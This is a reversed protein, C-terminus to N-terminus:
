GGAYRLATGSVRRLSAAIRRHRCPSTRRFRRHAGGSHRGTRGPCAGSERRLRAASSHPRPRGAPGQGPPGDSRPMQAKRRFTKRPLGSLWPDAGLTRSQRFRGTCPSRASQRLLLPASIPTQPIVERISSPLRSLDRHPEAGAHAADGSRYPRIHSALRM